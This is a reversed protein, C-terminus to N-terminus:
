PGPQGTADRQGAVLDKEGPEAPGSANRALAPQADAQARRSDGGDQQGFGVAVGFDSNPTVWAM